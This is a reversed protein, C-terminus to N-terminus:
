FLSIKLEECKTNLKLKSCTVKLEKSLQKYQWHSLERDNLANMMKLAINFVNSNSNMESIDLMLERYIRRTPKKMPSGLGVKAVTRKASNYLEAFSGIIKSM